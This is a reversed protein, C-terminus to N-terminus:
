RRWKCAPKSSPAILELMLRCQKAARNQRRTVVAPSEKRWFTELGCLLLNLSTLKTSCLLKM